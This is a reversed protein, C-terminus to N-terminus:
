HAIQNKLAIFLYIDPCYKLNRCRYITDAEFVILPPQAKLLQEMHPVKYRLKVVKFTFIKDKEIVTNLKSFDSKPIILITTDLSINLTELVYSFQNEKIDLVSLDVFEEKNYSHKLTSCNAFLLSILIIVQKM